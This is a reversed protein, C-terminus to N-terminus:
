KKTATVKNLISTVIIVVGMVIFIGIMGIGMKGLNDVFRSPQFDIDLDEVDGEEKESTATSKENSVALSEDVSAESSVDASADASEDSVVESSIDSVVETSVDSINANEEAFANVGSFAILFAAFLVIFLKKM